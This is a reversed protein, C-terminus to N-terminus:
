VNSLKGQGRQPVKDNNCLKKNRKIECFRTYSMASAIEPDYCVSNRDWRRYIAGQSGGLVGDRVLIGDFIVLEKVTVANWTHGYSAGTGTSYKYQNTFCSVDHYYSTRPDNVIGSWSPNCIPLILQLFFLADIDHMKSATLGLKKLTKACLKGDMEKPFLNNPTAGRRYPAAPNKWGNYHFEWGNMVRKGDSNKPVPIAGTPLAHCKYPSTNSRSVFKPQFCFRPWQGPNDVEDFIPENRAHKVLPMVYDDPVRPVKVHSMDMNPLGTEEEEFQNPYLTVNGLIDGSSNTVELLGKVSGGEEAFASVGVRDARLEAEEDDAVHLQFEDGEEDSDGGDGGNQDDDMERAAIAAHSDPHNEETPAHPSLLPLSQQQLVTGRATGTSPPSPSTLDSVISRDTGSRGNVRVSNTPLRRQNTRPASNSM